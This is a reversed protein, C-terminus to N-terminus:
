IRIEVIPVETGGLEYDIMRVSISDTDFRVPIDFEGSWTLSDTSQVHYQAWGGTSYTEASTDVNISFSTSDIVTIPYANGNLSTKGGILMLYIEDGNSYGHPASTTITTISTPSGTAVNTIAAQSIHTLTLIGTTDDLTFTSFDSGNRKLTVSGSVPKIIDKVYNNYGNGYTKILQVTPTGNPVLAEDTVKYDLYDKYRFQHARGRMENFFEILAELDSQQKIGYSVDYENRCNAWRQNSQEYGNDYVIVDTKWRPGGQSGYSIDTPFRTEYFAM